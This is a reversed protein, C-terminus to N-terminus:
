NKKLYSKTVQLKNSYVSRTYHLIHQASYLELSTFPSVGFAKLRFINMIEIFTNINEMDLYQSNISVYIQM